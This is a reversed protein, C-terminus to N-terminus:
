WGGADAGVKYEVREQRYTKSSQEKKPIILISLYDEGFYIGEADSVIPPECYKLSRKGIMEHPFDFETSCIYMVEYFSNAEKLRTNEKRTEETQLALSGIDIQGVTHKSRTDM